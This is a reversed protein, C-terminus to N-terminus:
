ISCNDYTCIRAIFGMFKVFYQGASACNMQPQCTLLMFYCKLRSNNLHVNQQNNIPYPQGLDRKGVDIKDGCTSLVDVMSCIKISKFVESVMSQDVKMKTNSLEM